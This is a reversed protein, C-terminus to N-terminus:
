GDKKKGVFAASIAVIAGLVVFIGAAVTKGGIMYALAIFWPVRVSDKASAEFWGLGYYVLVGFGIIFLGVIFQGLPNAKLAGLSRDAAPEKGQSCPMCKGGTREATDPLVFAGCVNCPIKGTETDSM